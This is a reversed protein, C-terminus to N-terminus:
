IKRLEKIKEELESTAKNIRKPAEKLEDLSTCTLVYVPEYKTYEGKEGVSFDQFILKLCHKKGIEEAIKFEKKTYIPLENSFIDIFKYQSNMVPGGYPLKINKLIENTEKRPLPM